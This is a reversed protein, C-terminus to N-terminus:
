AAERQEEELEQLLADMNAEVEDRLIREVERETIGYKIALEHISDGCRWRGYIELGDPGM